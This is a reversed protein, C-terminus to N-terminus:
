WHLWGLSWGVGVAELPPPSKRKGKVQIDQVEEQFVPKQRVPLSATILVESQQRPPRDLNSFAQLFESASSCRRSPKRDVARALVADCAAPLEPRLAVLSPLPITMHQIAYGLPTEALYPLQGALMEFCLIGLMYVDSRGDLEESGSAQEPSSYAPPGLLVSSGPSLSAEALKVMGFDSLYAKGDADFLINSPKIDGHLHGARACCGARLCDTGPDALAEDLSLPGDALRQDLSGGAMWPMVIYLQNEHEGFELVPVIAPHNLSAIIQVERQYAPVFPPIM